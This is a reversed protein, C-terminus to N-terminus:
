SYAQVMSSLLSHIRGERDTMKIHCRGLMEDYVRVTSYHTDGRCISRHPLLEDRDLGVAQHFGPISSIAQEPNKRSSPVYDYAAVNQGQQKRAASLKRPTSERRPSIPMCGCRWKEEEEEEEEKM